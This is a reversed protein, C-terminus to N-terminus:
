YFFIRKISLPILYVVFYGTLLKERKWLTLHTTNAPLAPFYARFVTKEGKYHQENAGNSSQDIGEVKTVTYKYGSPYAKICTKPSLWIGGSQNDSYVYEFDLVTQSNNAVVKTLTMSQNSFSKSYSPYNMVEPLVRGQAGQTPITTLENVRSISGPRVAYCLQEDEFRLYIQNGGDDPLTVFNIGCSINKDDRCEFSTVSPDSNDYDEVKYKQVKATHFIFQKNNANYEIEFDCNEM